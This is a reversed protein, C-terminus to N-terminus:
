TNIGVRMFLPFEILKTEAAPWYEQLKKELEEVPNCNKKRIYHEVASWTQLYSLLQSLNWLYTNKFAPPQLEKFPFPITQYSNEVYGREMDWYNGLTASYFDFILSDLVPDITILNYGVLVIIGNKKLTRKVEKYFEDFRFWHVAQAVTVLDFMADAFGPNEAPSVSYIINDKKPAHTIQYLSIDTAYVEHFKEALKVALQGNGTACDWVANRGKTLSVIYNILQDPYSPRYKAYDASHASFNAKM